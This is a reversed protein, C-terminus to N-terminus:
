AYNLAWLIEQGLEDVRVIRRLRWLKRQAHRRISLARSSCVGLQNGLAKLTTGNELQLLAIIERSSIGLEPLKLWEGSLGLASVKELELKQDRKKRAAKEENKIRALDNRLANMKSRLAKIEEEKEYVLVSLEVSSSQLAINEQNKM